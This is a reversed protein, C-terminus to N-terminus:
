LDKEYEENARRRHNKTKAPKKKGLPYPYTLVLVDEEENDSDDIIIGRRKPRRIIEEDEEGDMVQPFAMEMALPAEAEASSAPTFNLLNFHNLV